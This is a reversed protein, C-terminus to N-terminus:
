HSGFSSATDFFSCSILELFGEMRFAKINEIKGHFDKVIMSQNVLILGISYHKKPAKVGPHSPEFAFGTCTRRQGAVTLVYTWALDGVQFSIV